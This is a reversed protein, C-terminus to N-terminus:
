EDGNDGNGNGNEIIRAYEEADKREKDTAIVDLKEAFTMKAFQEKSLKVGLNKLMTDARELADPVMAGLINILAKNRANQKEL